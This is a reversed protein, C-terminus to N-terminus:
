YKPIKSASGNKFSFIFNFTEFSYILLNFFTKFDFSFPPFKTQPTLVQDTGRNLYEAANKLELFLSCCAINNRNKCQIIYQFM